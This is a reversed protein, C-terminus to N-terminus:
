QVYVSLGYASKTNKPVVVKHIDSAMATCREAIMRCENVTEATHQNIAQLHGLATQQIAILELSSNKSVSVSDSKELLARMVAVNAAIGPLHSVYYNQTNLAATLGTISQESASAIEKSIGSADTGLDRISVGAKELMNAVNTSAVEAVKASEQTKKTLESWFDEKYFDKENMNEIMGFVPKLAQEMVRSLLSEAIMNQVMEKFKKRLAETTKAGARGIEAYAELWAKAMDRAASALDSGLMKAAVANEMDAIKDLTKRYNKEYEKLKDKDTKKGKSKEAEVQARYAEATAQLNERQKKMNNIFDSGFVKDAAKELREYQYELEDLIDKQREIEKNAKKVKQNGVFSALATVVALVAAAIALWPNAACTINFAKQLLIVLEMITTFTSITETMVKFVDGMTSSDDTCDGIIPALAAMVNRTKDVWEKAKQSSSIFDAQADNAKDEANNVGDKATKVAKAAKAIKEETKRQQALAANYRLQAAIYANETTLGAEKERKAKQLDALAAETLAKDMSLMPDQAERTAKYEEEAKALEAKAKKVEEQAKLMTNFDDGMAKFPNNGAIQADIKELASVLTKLNEPSLNKDTDIVKKIEERLKTLSKTSVAELNEFAKIYMDSGTFEKVSLDSLDKQEKTRNLNIMEDKQEQPINSKIIDARQQAAQSIIDLRQEEYDKAKALEKAWNLIDAESVKKGNEILKQVTDKDKEILKSNYQDYLEQLKQYNIRQNEVDIADELSAQINFDLNVDGTSFLKKIQEVTKDFLASGDEGHIALSINTSLEIDGTQALIKDYFEKATKTRAVKDALEKLEKDIKKQADDINLKAIEVKLSLVAKDTKSIKKLEQRIRELYATLEATNKPVTFVPLNFKYKQSLEQMSKFTDAYIRQTDALAKTAGEKKSLDDYEANIQKLTSVMEQLIGPRPDEKKGGGKNKKTEFVPLSSLMNNILTAKREEEKMQEEVAQFPMGFYQLQLKTSALTKMTEQADKVAGELRERYDKLSEGMKIAYQGISKPLGQMLGALTWFKRMFVATTDDSPALSIYMQQLERAAAAGKAKAPGKFLAMIKDWDIFSFQMNGDVVSKAQRYFEKPIEVGEKAAVDKLTQFLFEIKQNSTELMQQYQGDAEASDFMSLTSPLKLQNSPNARNYENGSKTLAANSSWDLKAFAHSVNDIATRYVGAADAAERTQKANEDLMKNQSEISKAYDYIASDKGNGWWQDWANQWSGNLKSPNFFKIASLEQEAWSIDKAFKKLADDTAEIASKGKNMQDSIYQIFEGQRDKSVGASNLFDVLEKRGDEIIEGYSSKIAAERDDGRKKANYADILDILNQYENGMAKLNELELAESGLIDGYTRNLEDLADKQAKSGDINDQVAKVLEKFRNRSDKSVRTYEADIGQLKGTLKDMADEMTAFYAIVSALITGLILLPHGLFAAKLSYLSRTLVNNAQAAQLTAKASWQATLANYRQVVNGAQTAAVNNKAATLKAQLAAVEELHATTALNTSLKAQLTQIRLISKATALVGALTAAQKWHKMLSAVASIAAKMANNVPGTNGIEDYMLSAADGLKAWMGYLTGGMKEQMNYFMGGASTMDDFVEKVLEFSIARKSVMDMVQAATVMEGNMRSLKAALEEVIPVGMETFQRIESARLYGTARTQGYALVVRDMSVGLGVSIDTLRKTTDFLDDVGIKYAALQKTYKTLDMIKVPSKVAFAKIESFLRNARQQDQIIAGLAVRQLEFEATVDKIQTLFQMAYSFSAYVALRKLLRSVYTEQQKFEDNTNRVAGSAATQKGTIKDSEVQLERLRESLRKVEEAAQKFMTTGVMQRSLREQMVQLKAQVNAITNENRALIRREENAVNRRVDLLRQAEEKRKREVALQAELKQRAIDAGSTLVQQLQKELAIRENLIRLAYSNLNGSNDTLNNSVRLRNLVEDKERIREQLSNALRVQNGIDTKSLGAFSKDQYLKLLEQARTLEINVTRIQNALTHFADDGVRTNSIASQYASLQSKLQGITNGYNKLSNILERTKLVENDLTALEAQRKANLDLLAASLERVRKAIAEYEPTGFQQSKLSNQFHKLSTELESQINMQPNNRRQRKEFEIQEKELRKAEKAQRKAEIDAAKNAASQIETLSQAYTRSAATLEAFRNILRQARETYEGTERNAIREAESLKAWEDVLAKMEDNMAHISGTNFKGSTSSQMKLLQERLDQLASVDTKIALPQANIATQMQRLVRDIDGSAEKLASDLDFRIRFDLSDSM